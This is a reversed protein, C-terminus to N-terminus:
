GSVAMTVCNRSARVPLARRAVEINDLSQRRRELEELPPVGAGGRSLLYGDKLFYRGRLNPLDRVAASVDDISLGEPMLRVLDSLTTTSGHISAAQFAVTIVAEAM